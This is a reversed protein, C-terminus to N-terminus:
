TESCKSVRCFGSYVAVASPGTSSLEARKKNKNKPSRYAMKPAFYLADTFTHCAFLLTICLIISIQAIVYSPEFSDSDKHWIMNHRQTHQYNVM